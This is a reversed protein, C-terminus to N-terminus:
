QSTIIRLADNSKVSVFILNNEYDVGTAQQPFNFSSIQQINAPDAVNLAIFEKNANGTALFAFNGVAVIDNVSDYINISGRSTINSINTADLAYFKNETGLFVRSDTQVFVSEGEQGSVNWFGINQLSSPNSVNIIIMTKGSDDDVALYARNGLVFIDKVDAMIPITSLIQPSLPNSVNIAVLENRGIYVINNDYFVSLADVTGDLDLQSVKVPSSPNSVDIVMFEKDNDSSVAYLYNGNLALSNIGNGGTELEGLLSPSSPNSVNFISLDKKSQSSAISSVYVKNNEIIVDTGERGAGLDISSLTQPNAWNGSLGTDGSGPSGGSGLVSKWDTLLLSLEVEGSNWEARSTIQKTKSDIDAIVIKRTFIDNTDWSGSFQWEGNSFVLGHEGAMLSSWNKQAIAKVAELGESSLSQARINKEKDAALFQHQSILILGSSVGIAFVALGILIEM